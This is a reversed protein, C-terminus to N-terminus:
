AVRIQHLSQIVNPKSPPLPTLFKIKAERLCRKMGLWSQINWFGNIKAASLCGMRSRKETTENWRTGATPEASSYGDALKQAHARTWSFPEVEAFPAPCFAGSSVPPM